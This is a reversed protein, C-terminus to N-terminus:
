SFLFYFVVFLQLDPCLITLIQSCRCNKIKPQFAATQIIFHFNASSSPLTFAKIAGSSVIDKFNVQCNTKAPAGCGNIFVQWAFEILALSFHFPWLSSFYGWSDLLKHNVVTWTQPSTECVVYLDANSIIWASARCSCTEQPEWM